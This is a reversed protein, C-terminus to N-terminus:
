PLFGPIKRFWIYLDYSIQKAKNIKKICSLRHRVFPMYLKSAFNRGHVGCLAATASTGAVLFLMPCLLLMLLNHTLKPGYCGVLKKKLPCPGHESENQNTPLNLIPYSHADVALPWCSVEKNGSLIVLRSLSSEFMLLTADSQTISIFQYSIIYALLGFWCCPSLKNPLSPAMRLAQARSRSVNRPKFTFKCWWRGGGQLDKNITSVM